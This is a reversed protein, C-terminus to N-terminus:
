RSVRELMGKWAIFGFQLLEEVLRCDSIDSLPVTLRSALREM